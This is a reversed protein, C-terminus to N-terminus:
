KIHKVFDGNPKDKRCTFAQRGSEEIVATAMLSKGVGPDGYLLLGKPASAGLKEYAERNKLTDGIQRLEGKIASYGIIKDIAKM